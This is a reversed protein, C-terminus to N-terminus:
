MKMCHMFDLLPFKTKFAYTMFAEGDGGFKDILKVAKPYGYELGMGLFVRIKIEDTNKGPAFIDVPFM